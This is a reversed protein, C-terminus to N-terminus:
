QAAFLTWKGGLEKVHACITQGSCILIFAPILAIGARRHTALTTPALIM